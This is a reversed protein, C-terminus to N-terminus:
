GRGEIDDVLSQVGAVRVPFIGDLLAVGNESEVQLIRGALSLAPVNVQLVRAFNAFTKAFLRCTPTREM